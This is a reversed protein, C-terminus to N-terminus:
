EVKKIECGMGAMRELIVACYPPHLEMQQLAKVTHNGAKVIGHWLVVSRAYGFRRISKKIMDVDGRRYNAAWLVIESLKVLRM